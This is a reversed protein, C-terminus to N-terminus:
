VMCCMERVKSKDAFEKGQKDLERQLQEKDYKLQENSLILGGLQEERQADSRAKDERLSNIESM